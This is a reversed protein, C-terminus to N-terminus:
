QYRADVEAGLPLGNAATRPVPTVLRAATLWDFARRIPPTPSEPDVARPQLKRGVFRPLTAFVHRLRAPDVGARYKAFDDRMTQLLDRHIESTAAFSRERVWSAVAAPMGGVLAYTRSLESLPAHLSPDIPRDPTCARLADILREEGLALLFETFTMPELHGFTVRGVPTSVAPDTLALDLLSGTAVVHLAPLEEAFWRLKGLLEPAAQIEDLFPLTQGPPISRRLRAELLGLAARPENGRFTSALDPDRELNLTAVGAPFSAGFQQVLWTKGTQRAGRL